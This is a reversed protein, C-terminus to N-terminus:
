ARFGRGDAYLGTLSANRVVDSQRKRANDGLISLRM